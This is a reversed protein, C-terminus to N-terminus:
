RRDPLHRTITPCATIICAYNNCASANFKASATPHRTVAPAPAVAPPVAARGGWAFACTGTVAVFLRSM